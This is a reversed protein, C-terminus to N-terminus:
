FGFQDLAKRLEFMPLGIIASYSGSVEKLFQDGFGEIAIAGSGKLGFSKELYRDLWADPVDFIYDTKVTKKIRDLVIWQNKKYQRKDLCFSTCASAGRRAAKLKKVADVKDIPKGEISGDKNLCLTDATLIFSIDGEQGKPMIVHDMKDLAIAQVLQEFSFDKWECNTEDSNHGVVTFNIGAESLLKQRSQSQSGLLLFNKM